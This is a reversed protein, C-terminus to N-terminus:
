RLCVPVPMDCTGLAPFNGKENDPGEKQLIFLADVSASACFVCVGITALSVKHSPLTSVVDDYISNANKDFECYQHFFPM